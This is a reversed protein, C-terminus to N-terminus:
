MDLELVWVKDKITNLADAHSVAGQQLSPLDLASPPMRSPLIVQALTLNAHNTSQLGVRRIYHTLLLLYAGTLTERRSNSAM